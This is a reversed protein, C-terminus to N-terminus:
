HFIEIFVHKFQFLSCSHLHAPARGTSKSANKSGNSSAPEVHEVHEVHEVLTALAKALATWASHAIEEYETREM